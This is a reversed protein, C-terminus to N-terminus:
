LTAGRSELDSVFRRLADTAEDNSVFAALKGQLAQEREAKQGIAAKLIPQAQDVLSKLSRVEEIIEQNSRTAPLLFLTNVILPVIITVALFFGALTVRSRANGNADRLYQARSFRSKANRRRRREIERAERKAIAATKKEQRLGHRQERASLVVDADNAGTAFRAVGATEGTPADANEAARDSAAQAADAPSEQALRDLMAMGEPSMQMPVPAAEKKKGFGFIMM